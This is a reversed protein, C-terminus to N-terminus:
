RVMYTYFHIIGKSSLYLFSYYDIIQINGYVEHIHDHERHLYIWLEADNTYKIEGNGDRSWM